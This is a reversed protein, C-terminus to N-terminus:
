IFIFLYIINKSHTRGSAVINPTQTYSDVQSIFFYTCIEILIVVRVLISQQNLFAWGESIDELSM